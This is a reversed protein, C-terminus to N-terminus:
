LKAEALERQATAKALQEEKIKSAVLQDTVTKGRKMSENLENNAQTLEKISAGGGKGFGEFKGLGVIEGKLTRLQAAITNLEGVVKPVDALSDIRDINAM